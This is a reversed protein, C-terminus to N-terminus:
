VFKVWCLFFILYRLCEIVVINIYVNVEKYKSYIKNISNSYLFILIFGLGYLCVIVEFLEIFLMGLESLKINFFEIDIVWRLIWFM